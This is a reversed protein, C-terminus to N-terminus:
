TELGLGASALGLDVGLGSNVLGPDDIFM